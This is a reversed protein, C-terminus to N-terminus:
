RLLIMGIGQEYISGEKQKHGGSTSNSLGKLM